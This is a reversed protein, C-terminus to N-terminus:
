LVWDGATGDIQERLIDAHGAHRATEEIMHLYIWRLSVQGMHQHPVTHDLPYGAASERSRQCQAEFEAIVSELTEDAELRFDGDPDAESYPRPPLEDWSRQGLVRQFWGLEVWRMHKILGGLTTASPVLRRRADEESVGRVKRVLEARYNDLFAELMVREDATSVSENPELAPQVSTM